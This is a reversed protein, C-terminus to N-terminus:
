FESQCNICFHTGRGAVRSKMIKGGCVFCGEGERGFVKLKSMYNGSDGKADSYNRFTTGKYLIAEELIKKAGEVILVIKERPINGAMSAPHVGAFFCVEDAYINGIGAILKQNLLVSKINTKRNSILDEVYKVSFNNDMPEPGYKKLINEFDEEKVIDIYGFKRMDNFYLCFGENFFIAMRTHKNPVSFDRNLLTHGGGVLGGNGVFILQGTMKLHCLMKDGSEFHFVLLKGVRGVGMVKQGILSLDKSAGRFVKATYVEFDEIVLGVLGEYLQRRVTEVEPLEPM